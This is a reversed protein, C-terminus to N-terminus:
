LGAMETQRRGDACLEIRAMSSFDADSSILLRPSLKGLDDLCSNRVQVYVARSGREIPTDTDVELHVVITIHFIEHLRCLSAFPRISIFITHAVSMECILDVQSLHCRKIYAEVTGLERRM